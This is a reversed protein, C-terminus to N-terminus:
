TLCSLEYNAYRVAQLRFLRCGFVSLDTGAFRHQDRMKTVTTVPDNDRQRQKPVGTTTYLRRQVRSPSDQDM